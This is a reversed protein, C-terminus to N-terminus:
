CVDTSPTLSTRMQSIFGMRVTVDGWVQSSLLHRQCRTKIFGCLHTLLGVSAYLLHGHKEWPYTPDMGASGLLLRSPVYSVTNESLGTGPPQKRPTPRTPWRRRRWPLITFRYKIKIKGTSNNLLLLPIFYYFAIDWTLVWPTLKWQSKIGM